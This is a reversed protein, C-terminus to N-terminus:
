KTKLADELAKNAKNAEDADEEQKDIMRELPDKSEPGKEGAPAGPAGGGGAAPEGSEIEPILIEVKSPDVKSADSKYVMVMQPFLIVLGIMIVQIVVYPVAGWYIQGTTIPAM